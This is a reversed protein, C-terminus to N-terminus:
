LADSIDRFMRTWLLREGEDGELVWIQKGSLDDEGAFVRPELSVRAGGSPLPTIRAIYARTYDIAQHGMAAARILRRNTKILGKEPNEMAIDFNQTRLAAKVAEFVKHPPASFDKSGYTDIEQTTMLSGRTGFCGTLASLSFAVALIRATSRM